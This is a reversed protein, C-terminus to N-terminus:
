DPFKFACALRLTVAAVEFKVEIVKDGAAKEM